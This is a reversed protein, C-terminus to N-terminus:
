NFPNPSVVAAKTKPPLVSVAIVAFVSAHSPEAHASTALKAVAVWVIPEELLAEFVFPADKPPIGLETTVASHVAPPIPSM